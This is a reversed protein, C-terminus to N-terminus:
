TSRQIKKMSREKDDIKLKIKQLARERENMKSM